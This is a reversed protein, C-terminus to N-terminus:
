RADPTSFGTHLTLLEKRLTMFTKVEEIANDPLPGTCGPSAGLRVMPKAPDPVHSVCAAHIEDLLPLLDSASLGVLSRVGLAMLGAMGMSFIEDPVNVGSRAMALLARMSWRDAQMAPMETLFFIKGKDRGEDTIVVEKTHRAM